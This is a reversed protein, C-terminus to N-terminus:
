VGSFVNFGRDITIVAVTVFSSAESCLFSITGSLENTDGFRGMPTNKIITEGRETYFGDENILLKRDQNGVFVGPALTNVRIKESFRTTMAAMWCIFNEMAAKSASYGVVCTIGRPVAMFSYNIISKWFM